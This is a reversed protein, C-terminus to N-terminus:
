LAGLPQSPPLSGVEVTQARYLGKKNGRYPYHGNYNAQEPTIDEGFSFSTSTGARCAYEWEAETPLRFLLGPNLGMVAPPSDGGQQSSARDLARDVKADLRLIFGQVDEWTVTEVPRQEGKSYSPNNGMVAQWLAQTCVTEALWFGRTLIVEHQREDGYREVEKEPSPNLM